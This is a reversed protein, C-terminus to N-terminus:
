KIGIKDSIGEFIKGTSAPSPTGGGHKAKITGQSKFLLGNKDHVEKIRQFNEVGESYKAMSDISDVVFDLIVKAMENIKYGHASYLRATPEMWNDKYYEECKQVYRLELDKDSVGLWKKLEEKRLENSLGRLIECSPDNLFKYYYLIWGAEEPRKEKLKRFVEVAEADPHAIWFDELNPRNVVSIFEIRDHTFNYSV